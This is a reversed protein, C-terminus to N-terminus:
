YMGLVPNLLVGTFMNLGTALIEDPFDYDPNHLAPSDVGAGICFFAGPFRSTFHGFDEGWKFPLDFHVYPCQSAIASAELLDVAEDKNGCSVFIEVWETEYTLKTPSFVLAM